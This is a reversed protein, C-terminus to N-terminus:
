AHFRRIPQKMPESRRPSPDVRPSCSGSATRTSSPCGWSSRRTTSPARRLRRGRRLRDEEVGLRGGQRRAGPDGGQGRRPLVRDLSGTVVVDAGGAHAARERRARRGDARRRGRWKDVIACHWDVAFWETLAAAITPGVGEVAALQEESAPRSRTWTASSPRWRVARGDARRAPDVVGGAGAVAAATKAKDLNDLLRQRQRVSRRGEDTFLETRLLDDETLAFLDGEDAIVGAKLLATAAEYGLGEIDFAGRGAVHFVRERLQAPCSRANPCRIDADGEKAPALPHRMRSVHHAHRIRTRLRRAPRRRSRAGRPDRRRSQPDDGHRRDARGQAQGRRRQAPHGAGGDVRGGEGADHVRVPHRTRHARRQRPHRAAQDAGGRPPYKYAVAWRPARSTSGLRRQLAVEDVKVVVGDIEHELDHRHEGWYGIREEVAALGRVRATQEAM